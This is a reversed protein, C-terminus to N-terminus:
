SGTDDAGRRLEACVGMFAPEWVHPGGTESDDPRRAVARVLAITRGADTELSEADSPFPGCGAAEVAREHQAWLRWGDELTDVLELELTGSRQWHRSWWDASHFCACDPEWFVKGNAQPVTLHQPPPGDLESTLGPVVVGLCGGPALLRHIYSVYLDDTGFYTYSDVALVADFYGEAFPLAHAEAHIPVVLDECGAEVVRKWNDSAPIWLDTAFVRVGFERALFVSTMARGCGLDLVRMGPELAVAECLWEMLWLANPGMQNAVVWAPDYRASRPFRDTHLLRGLEETRVM